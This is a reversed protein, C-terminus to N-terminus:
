GRRAVNLIADRVFIATLGAIISQLGNPMDGQYCMYLGTAILGIGAWTTKKGLLEM